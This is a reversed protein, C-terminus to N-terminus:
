FDYVIMEEVSWDKKPSKKSLNEMAVEYTTYLEIDNIAGMGSDTLLLAFIVHSKKKDNM